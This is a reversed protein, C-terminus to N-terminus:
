IELISRIRSVAQEQTAGVGTTHNVFEHTSCEKFWPERRKFVEEVPEGYAPRATEEGLYAVVEEIPRVVHVVRGNGKSSWAKLVDRAEPTEVIGGGLSIVTRKAHGSGEALLGKLIKTEAERFAPWGHEHVFERVGTNHVTAFHVDADLLPWGLTQAALSGIFSKGSGRM